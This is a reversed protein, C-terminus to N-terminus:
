AGLILIGSAVIDGKVRAEGRVETLRGLRKIVNVELTVQDGCQVQRPFTMDKVMALYHTGETIPAATRDPNGTFIMATAQAMCEVIAIGPVCLREVPAFGGFLESTFNKIAVVRVGWDVLVIRDLALFPYRHPLFSQIRNATLMRSM